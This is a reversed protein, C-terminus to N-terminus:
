QEQQGYAGAGNQVENAFLSSFDDDRMKM